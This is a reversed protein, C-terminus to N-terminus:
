FEDAVWLAIVIIIAMGASLGAINIFTHLKSRLMARFATKFYSKYMPYPNVHTSAMRGIAFPRLYHIAEYWVLLSCVFRSRSRREYDYKERLDGTVEDILDRRM